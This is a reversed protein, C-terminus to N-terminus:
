REGSQAHVLGRQKEPAIQVYRIYIDGGHRKRYLADPPWLWLDGKVPLSITKDGDNSLKVSLHPIRVAEIECAQWPWVPEITENFNLI